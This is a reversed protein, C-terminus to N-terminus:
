YNELRRKDKSSLVSELTEQILFQTRIPQYKDLYSDITEARNYNQAIRTEHDALKEECPKIHRDFLSKDVKVTELQIRAKKLEEVEKECTDIREMLMMVKSEVHDFDATKQTLLNDMRTVSERVETMGEVLETSTKQL